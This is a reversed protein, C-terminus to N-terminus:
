VPRCRALVSRLPWGRNARDGTGAVHVAADGACLGTMTLATASEDATKAIGFDLLKPTKRGDKDTALMINHPKLDRHIIHHRHARALAGAVPGLIAVIQATDMPGDRQIIEKLSPGEVYEMAIYLTGDKTQGFDFVTAINPHELNSAARAERQFRASAEATKMVEKRILKVAVTKDLMVHTARYVSGMGGASIFADIRYKGELLQGINADPAAEIPLPTGDNPCIRVAADYSAHCSPCVPM